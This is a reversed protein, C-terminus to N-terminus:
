RPGPVVKWNVVVFAYAPVLGVVKSKV